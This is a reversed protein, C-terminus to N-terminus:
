GSQPLPVKLVVDLRRRGHCVHCFKCAAILLAVRIAFRRPASEAWDEDDRERKVVVITSFIIIIVNIIIAMECVFVFVVVCVCVQM